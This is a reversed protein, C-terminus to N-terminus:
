GKLEVLEDFYAKLISTMFRYKPHGEYKDNLKHIDEAFSDLSAGEPLYKKFVAWVEASIEQYTKLLEM